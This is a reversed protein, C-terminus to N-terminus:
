NKKLWGEKQGKRAFFRDARTVTKGGSGGQNQTRPPAGNGRCAKYESDYKNLMETTLDEVSKAPDLTVGKFTQQLVYNDTANKDRMATKVKKVLATQTEADIRDKNAKELQELKKKMETLESNEKPSLEPKPPTTGKKLGEAVDHSYQGQLSQLFSVASSFYAEDPEAGEAIPHSEIYCTLTRQSLQTNGLKETLTSLITEKEM